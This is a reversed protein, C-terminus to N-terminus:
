ELLDNVGLKKAPGAQKKADKLRVKLRREVNNWKKQNLQFSNNFCNNSYCVGRKLEKIRCSKTNDKSTIKEKKKELLELFVAEITADM